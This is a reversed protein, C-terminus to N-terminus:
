WKPGRTPLLEARGVSEAYAEYDDPSMMNEVAELDEPQM